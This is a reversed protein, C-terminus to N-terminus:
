SKRVETINNLFLIKWISPVILIFFSVFFAQYLFGGFEGRCFDLIMVFFLFNYIQNKNTQIFSLIYGILLYILFPGMVGFNIFAESVPTYAFGMLHRSGYFKKIFSNALSIPKEPYIERPVFTLIPYVIYSEGLKFEYNNNKLYDDVELSLTYFPYVFENSTMTIMFDSSKSTDGSLNSRITSLYNFGFVILLIGIFGLIGFKINKIMVVIWYIGLIIPLFDRRNGVSLQLLIYYILLVFVIIVKIKSIKKYNYVFYLFGSIILLGIVVDVQGYNEFIDFRSGGILKSPNFLFGISYFFYTKYIILLILIFLVIFNYRRNNRLRQINEVFLQRSDKQKRFSYGILFAPITSAYIVTSKYIDISIESTLFYNVAPTFIGYLFLFLLFIVAISNALLRNIKNEIIFFGLFLSYFFLSILVGDLKYFYLFMYLISLVFSQLIGLSVFIKKLKGM